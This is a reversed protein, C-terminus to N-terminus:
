NTYCVCPDVGPRLGSWAGFNSSFRWFWLNEYFQFFWKWFWVGCTKDFLPFFLNLVWVSTGRLFQSASLVPTIIWLLQSLELCTWKFLFVWFVFILNGFFNYESKRKGEHILWHKKRLFKEMQQFIFQPFKPKGLTIEILKALKTYFKALINVYIFIPFFFVM